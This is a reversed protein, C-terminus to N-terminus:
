PLRTAQHPIETANKPPARRPNRQLGSGSVADRNQLKGQLAALSVVSGSPPKTNTHLPTLSHPRLSSSIFPHVPSAKGPKITALFFRWHRQQRLRTKRSQQQQHPQQNQPQASPHPLIGDTERSHRKSTRSPKGERYTPEKSGAAVGGDPDPLRSFSLTASISQLFPFHCHHLRHHLAVM